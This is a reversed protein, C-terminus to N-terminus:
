ILSFILSVLFSGAAAGAFAAIFALMNGSVTREGKAEPLITEPEPEPKEEPLEKKLPSVCYLNGGSYKLDVFGGAILTKLAKKVEACDKVVDDPFNECFEEDSIIVYRGVPALSSIKNFVANCIRDMM